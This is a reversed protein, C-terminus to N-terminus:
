STMWQKWSKENRISGWLVRSFEGLRMGSGVCLLCVIHIKVDRRHFCDSLFNFEHEFVLLLIDIQVPPM